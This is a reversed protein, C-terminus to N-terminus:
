GFGGANAGATYGQAGTLGSGFYMSSASALITTNVFYPAPTGIGAATEFRYEAALQSFAKFTCGMLALFLILTRMAQKQTQNTKKKMIDNFGPKKLGM